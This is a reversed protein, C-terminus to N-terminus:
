EYLEKYKKIINKEINIIEEDSKEDMTSEIINLYDIFELNDINKERIYINNGKKEYIGRIKEANKLNKTIGIYVEYFNNSNDLIYTDLNLKDVKEKTNYSGYLLMYIKENTNIVEITEITNKEYMNFIFIGALVSILTTSLFIYIFRKM